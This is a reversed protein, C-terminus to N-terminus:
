KLFVHVQRPKQKSLLMEDENWGSRVRAAFAEPTIGLTRAWDRMSKTKGRLTVYRNEDNAPSLLSPGSWGRKLRNFITHKNVGSEDAWGTICKTVNNITVMKSTSRNASQEKRTAWRVNLAWGFSLCEKCLGCSYHGDNCIRDISHEPSPRKGIVSILNLPSEKLFLCVTIGRKGYNQFVNYNPNFCRSMMASWSNGTPTQRQGHMPVFKGDSRRPQLKSTEGRKM